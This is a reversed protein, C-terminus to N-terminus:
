ETVEDEFEDYYMDWVHDYPRVKQADIRIDELKLKRNGNEGEQLGLRANKWSIEKHSLESLKWPALSGYELIVNNIIYKCEDSIDGLVDIIGDPTISNRIEKCVPGYKWGEFEGEFLPTNTIALSERQAFYLLKNLKMEDIVEGTVRKYEKFVYQAVNIIKEM